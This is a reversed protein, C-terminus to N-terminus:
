FGPIVYVSGTALAGSYPASVVLDEAGDGNFDPLAVLSGGLFDGQSAGLVYLDASSYAVYGTLSSLGGYWLGVRGSDGGPGDYGPMPAVFDRQGDGNLDVFAASTGAMETAEAGIVWYTSTALSTGGVPTAEGHVVGVQGFTSLADPAGFLLDAYADGDGDGAVIQSGLFNDSGGTYIADADEVSEGLSWAAAGGLKLAARGANANWASSGLIVDMVGDGNFDFDGALAQGLGEDAPSGVISADAESGNLSAGWAAQGFFVLLRGQFPGATESYWPCTFGLDGIGDGNVDGLAAVATGCQEVPGEGTIVVDATALTWAGGPPNMEGFWIYVAGPPPEATNFMPQGAILDDYGDDNVDGLDVREGLYGGEADGNITVHVGFTAPPAGADYPTGLVLHARGTGLNFAGSGSAFDSLGDGNFDGATSLSLGFHEQTATGSASPAFLGVDLDGSYAEDVAGDCDDDVGNPTDLAGPHIAANTDDCDGGCAGLGDGDLDEDTDEDVVGDCDDDRDNCQEPAGPYVDSLTDDCDPPVSCSSVGDADADFSEDIAADCDQDIGDCIEAAGPHITADADNCDPGGCGFHGDLDGDFGDDILDNCDQDVGDCVEIAGPYVEANADDCDQDSCFGDSDVDISSGDDILGNCDNDIGDCVDLAGPYAAPDNDDCDPAAGCTKHGDADEDWGEDTAGDCDNDLDDCLEPAGPHVASRTDDCDEPLAAGDNDNDIRPEEASPCGLILLVLPVLLRCM